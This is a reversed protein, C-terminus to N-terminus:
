IEVELTFLYFIGIKMERGVEIFHNGGGLTGLSLYARDMSQKDVKARLNIEYGKTVFKSKRTNISMGSPINKRIIDDLEKLKETNFKFYRKDIKYAAIGCGIDVGVHNPCVKDTILM